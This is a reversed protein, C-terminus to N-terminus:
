LRAQGLCRHAARRRPLGRGRARRDRADAWRYASMAAPEILGSPGVRVLEEVTNYTIWLWNLPSPDVVKVAGVPEGRADGTVLSAAKKMLDM